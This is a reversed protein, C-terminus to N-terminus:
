FEDIKDLVNLIREIDAPKSSAGFSIRVTGQEASGITRHALPACHYGTRVCIGRESLLRGVQAPPLREHLISVVAGGTDGMTGFGRVSALGSRFMRSLANEWVMIKERGYGRIVRIGAAISAIAPLPLTGPELREPLEEPMGAELSLIGAGGYALPGCRARESLLLIGAGPIGMLGKHGPLCLADICDKKVSIPLRGASQAADVVFLLGHDRCFAGIKGIPLVHSCINSQHTAIVVATDPTLNEELSALVAEEDGSADYVASTCLGGDTMARVPRVVANHALNDYLIRSGPPTLGRIATNLSWTAGPTFVTREPAGEFFDAATERAEYLLESAADSLPHSGRGPNGGARLVAERVAEMVPAPKPWSTAAHDLYVISM